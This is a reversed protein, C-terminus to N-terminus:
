RRSRRILLLGAPALLFLSSPEPVASATVMTGQDSPNAGDQFQGVYVWSTSVPYYTVASMQLFSNGAITAPSDPTTISFGSLSHGPALGSNPVSDYWEIAYGGIADHVSNGIWGAPSSVSATSPLFDYGPIWGFWFTGIQTTGTNNLTISYQYSGPSLQQPTYTVSAGIQANASSQLIGAALVAYGIIGIFRRM